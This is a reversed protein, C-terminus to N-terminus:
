NTDPNKIRDIVTRVIELYEKQATIFEKVKNNSRLESDIVRHREAEDPSIESGSERIGGLRKGIEILSYLLERSKRDDKLAAICEEYRMGVPHRRILQSLEDAKILIDQIEKDM